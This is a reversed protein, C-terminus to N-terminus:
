GNASSPSTDAVLREALDRLKINGRSSTRLLFAFAADSDVGYREMGIGIAQGLAQRSRLAENLHEIERVKELAIAAPAACLDAIDEAAHPVSVVAQERMTSVCPGEGLRYPVRDLERVLPDTAAQTEIAGHRDVATAYQASPTM